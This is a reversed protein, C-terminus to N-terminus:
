SNAVELDCIADETPVEALTRGSMSRDLQHHDRLCQGDDWGREGLTFFFRLFRERSETEQQKKKKKKKKKRINQLKPLDTETCMAATLSLQVSSSIIASSSSAPWSPSTTMSYMSSFNSASSGVFYRSHKIQNRTM